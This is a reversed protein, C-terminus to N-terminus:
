ILNFMMIWHPNNVYQGINNDLVGLLLAVWDLVYVIGFGSGTVINLVVALPSTGLYMRHVALWSTVPVLSLIFAVIPQPAPGIKLTADTFSNDAAALTMPTVETANEIMADISQEDVTYNAANAALGLGLVAVLCLFFKKM